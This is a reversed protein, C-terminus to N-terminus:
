DTSANKNLLNNNSFCILYLDWKEDLFALIFDM